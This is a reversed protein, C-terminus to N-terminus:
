PRAELPGRARAVVARPAARLADGAPNRPFGAALAEAEAALAAARRAHITGLGDTADDAAQYALGLRDGYAAMPAPDVSAAMAGLECALRFLSATKAPAVEEPRGGRAERWAGLWAERLAVRVREAAATEEFQALGWAVAADGALLALRAGYRAHVAPRGRRERDGDLIDDHILTAAHILELGAAWREALDARPGGQAEHVLLLLAPRLRKGGDLAAGLVERAEAPEGELLGALRADVRHRMRGLHAAFTM